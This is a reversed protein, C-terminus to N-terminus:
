VSRIWRNYMKKQGSATIEIMQIVAKKKILQGVELENKFGNMARSLTRDVFAKLGKEFRHAKESKAKDLREPLGKWKSFAEYIKGIRTKYLLRGIYKLNEDRSKLKSGASQWRKFCEKIRGRSCEIM